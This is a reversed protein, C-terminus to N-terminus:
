HAASSLYPKRVKPVKQINPTCCCSKSSCIKAWPLIGVSLIPHQLFRCLYISSVADGPMRRTRNRMCQLSNYLLFHSIARLSMARKKKHTHSHHNQKKQMGQCRGRELEWVSSVTTSSFFPCLEQRIPTHTTAKNRRRRRCGGRGLEWVRSQQLPFLVARLKYTNSHLKAEEADRLM